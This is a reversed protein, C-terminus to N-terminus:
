SAALEARAATTMGPAPGGIRVLPWRQDPPNGMDFSVSRSTAPVLCRSCSREILTEGHRCERVAERAKGVHRRDEGGREHDSEDLPGADLQQPRCQRRFEFCHPCMDVDIMDCLRRDDDKAAAGCFTM